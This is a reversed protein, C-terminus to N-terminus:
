ISYHCRQMSMGANINMLLEEAQEVIYIPSCVVFCWLEVSSIRQLPLWRHGNSDGCVPGALRYVWCKCSVKCFVNPGFVREIKSHDLIARYIRMFSVGYRVKIPSGHPLKKLKKSCIWWWIDLIGQIILMKDTMAYGIDKKHHVAVIPCM